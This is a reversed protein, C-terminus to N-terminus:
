SVFFVVLAALIVVIDIWLMWNKAYVRTFFKWYYSIVGEKKSLPETGRAKHLYFQKKSFPWLWMVGYEISDGLFHSLLCLFLLIGTALMLSANLLYSIEIIILSLLLWPLPAHSWQVRHSENKQLNMSGHKLFFPIFDLDPLLAFLIGLTILVNEQSASLSLPSLHLFAKAILYGAAAHSFWLM